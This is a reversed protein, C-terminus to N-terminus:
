GHRDQLWQQGLKKGSEKAMQQKAKLAAIRTASAQGWLSELKYTEGDEQSAETLAVSQPATYNKKKKWNPTLYFSYEVM